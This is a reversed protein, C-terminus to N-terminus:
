TAKHNVGSGHGGLSFLWSLLLILLFFVVAHVLVSSLSTRWNRFEVPADAGPIQLLLGPSLIIFLITGLIILGWDM